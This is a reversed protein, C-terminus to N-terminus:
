RRQDGNETALLVVFPASRRTEGNEAKMTTAALKDGSDDKSRRDAANQLEGLLQNAAVEKWRRDLTAAGRLLAFDPPYPPPFPFQAM